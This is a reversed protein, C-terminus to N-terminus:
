PVCNFVILSNYINNILKKYIYKIKLVFMHAQPQTVFVPSSLSLTTLSLSATNTKNLFDLSIAAKHSFVLHEKLVHFMVWKSQM